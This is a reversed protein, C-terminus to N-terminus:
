NLTNISIKHHIKDRKRRTGCILREDKFVQKKHAMFDVNMLRQSHMFLTFNILCISFEKTYLEFSRSTLNHSHRIM